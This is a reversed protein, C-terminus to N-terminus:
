GMPTMFKELKELDVGNPVKGSQRLEGSIARSGTPKYSKQDTCMFPADIARRDHGEPNNWTTPYHPPPPRGRRVSFVYIAIPWFKQTWPACLLAIAINFPIMIYKLKEITYNKNPSKDSDL